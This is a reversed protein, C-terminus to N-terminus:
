DMGQGRCKCLALLYKGVCGHVGAPAGRRISSKLLLATPAHACVSDAGPDITAVEGVCRMELYKYLGNADDRTILAGVMGVNRDQIWKGGWMFGKMHPYQSCNLGAGWEKCWDGTFDGWLGTYQESRKIVNGKATRHSADFWAVKPRQNGQYAIRLDLTIKIVPDPSQAIQTPSCEWHSTQITPEQAAATGAALILAVISTLARM